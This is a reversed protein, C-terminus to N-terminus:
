VNEIGWIPGSKQFTSNKLLWAQDCCNSIAARAVQWIGGTDVSELAM